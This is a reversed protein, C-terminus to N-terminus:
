PKDEMPAASLNAAIDDGIIQGLVQIIATRPIDSRDLPGPLHEFDSAPEGDLATAPKETHARRM